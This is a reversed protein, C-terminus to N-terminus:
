PTICSWRFIRRWPVISRHSVTLWEAGLIAGRSPMISSTFAAIPSAKMDALSAAPSTDISTRRSLTASTTRM